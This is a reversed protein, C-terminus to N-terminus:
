ENKDFPQHLFSDDVQESDAIQAILDVLKPRHADFIDTVEQTTMGREYQGLLADYPHEDYGRYDAEQLNLDILGKLADVFISFDAKERAEAWISHALAVKEARDAVFETPLKTADAYDQEVVRIMSAEDSDYEAGNLETKAGDLLEATQESTMMSHQIKALTAMQSARAEAGGDPMETEQDWSLIASANGLNTIDKLHSLLNNYKESM